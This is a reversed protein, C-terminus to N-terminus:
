PTSAQTNSHDWSGHQHPSLSRAPGALGSLNQSLYWAFVTGPGGPQPKPNVVGGQLLARNSLSYRNLPRIDILM